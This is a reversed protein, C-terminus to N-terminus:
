LEGYNTLKPPTYTRLSRLNEKTFDSLDLKFIDNNKISLSRGLSYQFLQNGLGGNLKIIIM